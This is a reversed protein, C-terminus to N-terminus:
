VRFLELANQTTLAAAKEIPVGKIDAVKQAVQRIYSSENRKGRFPVPALYPADTELLIHSLDIDKIVEPLTSKKFTVVGGIGLYFGLDIIANAEATTGSFCHFVGRLQGKQRARVLDICEETSNRSHIVVPLDYELAWTIQQNFARIQQEKFAVDWYFDLGTEGIAVFPRAELWTKVGELEEEVNEKVSCPHLGMMAYALDPFAAETQLLDDITTSDINPLFIKKVENKLAREMVERRDDKFEELYLHAHSDALFM